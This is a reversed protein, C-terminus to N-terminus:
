GVARFDGEVAITIPVEFHVHHVGIPRYNWELEVDVHGVIARPKLPHNNIPPGKECAPLRNNCRMWEADGVRPNRHRNRSAGYTCGRGESPYAECGNARRRVVTRIRKVPDVDRSCWTS